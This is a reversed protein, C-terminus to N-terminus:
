DATINANKALASFRALDAKNLAVFQEPTGGIPDMAWQDLFQLVDPRALLDNMARNLRAVIAPPTGAPAYLGIWFTAEFGPYGSEAVTPVDPLHQSRSSSTQALLRIRGSKIQQLALEVPTVTFDVQAQLVDMLAGTVGRSPIHRAKTGTAQLLMETFLHVTSAIGASSYSSQGKSAKLLTLLEGFTKAPSSAPVAVVFSGHSFQGIPAFDTIPNYDIKRVAATIVHTTPAVMLTLGDPAARAVSATGITGSAGPRNDVVATGGLLAPIKEAFLRATADIGSGPTYPVVLRIPRAPYGEASQAQASAGFLGFGALVCVLPALRALLAIHNTM